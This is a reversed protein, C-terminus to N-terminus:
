ANAADLRELIIGLAQEKNEDYIRLERPEVDTAPTTQKPPFVQTSAHKWVRAALLAAKTQQVFIPYTESSSLMVFDKAMATLTLTLSNLSSLSSPSPALTNPVNLLSKPKKQRLQYTFTFRTHVDIFLLWYKDCIKPLNDDLKNLDKPTIGKVMDLKVLKKLRDIGIHAMRKHLLSLTLGPSSSTTLALETSSVPITEGNLYATKNRYSATM